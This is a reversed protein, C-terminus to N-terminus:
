DGRNLQISESHILQPYVFRWFVALSDDADKKDVPALEIKILEPPLAKTNTSVWVNDLYNPHNIAAITRITTATGFVASALARNATTYWGPYAKITFKVSDTTPAKVGWNDWYSAFTGICRYTSNAYVYVGAVTDGATRALTDYVIAPFLDNLYYDGLDIYINNTTGATTDINAIGTLAWNDGSLNKGSTFNLVQGFLLLPLLVFFLIRYM